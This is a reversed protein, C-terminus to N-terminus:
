QIVPRDHIEFRNIVSKVGPVHKACQIARQVDKSLIAGSLTVEGNEVYIDLSRPHELARGLYSRVREILVFDDVPPVSKGFKKVHFIVGKAHGRLNRMKRQSQANLDNKMRVAKDRAFALRRHGSVPDFIYALFGGALAGIAMWALKNSKMRNTKRKTM